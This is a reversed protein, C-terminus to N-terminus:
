QDIRHALGSRHAIPADHQGALRGAGSDRQRRQLAARRDVTRDRDRGGM